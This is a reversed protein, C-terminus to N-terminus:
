PNTFSILRCTYIFGSIIQLNSPNTEVDKQYRYYLGYNAAYREEAYRDYILTFDDQQVVTLTSDFQLFPTTEPEHVATIKYSLPDFTNYVNGNWSTNLSPPLVLRLYRINDDLLEVTGSTVNAAMVRWIVWTGATSDFLFREIRQTKRGANDTYHSEIVERYYYRFTDITNTFEDWAISDVLYTREIGTEDPYYNQGTYLSIPTEEEDKKCSQFFIALFLLVLVSRSFPM